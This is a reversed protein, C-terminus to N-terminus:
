FGSIFFKDTLTHIHGSHPVFCSLSMLAAFFISASPSLCIAYSVYTPCPSVSNVGTSITPFSTSSAPLGNAKSLPYNVYIMHISNLPATIRVIRCDSAIPIKNFSMTTSLTSIISLHTSQRIAPKM